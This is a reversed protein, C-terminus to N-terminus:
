RLAFFRIRTTTDNITRSHQDFPMQDFSEGLKVLEGKLKAKLRAGSVDGPENNCFASVPDSAEGSIFDALRKACNM